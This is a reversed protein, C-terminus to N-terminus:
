SYPFRVSVQPLNKFHKDSTLLTAGTFVSCAAIWIDNIPLPTGQSQLYALLEGFVEAVERGIEIVRVNPRTLFECLIRDNEEHRDGRRFGHYLEGLVIASVTVVSAKKIEIEWAGSRVWDSYANTDLIVEM